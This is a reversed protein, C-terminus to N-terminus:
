SLTGDSRHTGDLRWICCMVNEVIGGCRDEM